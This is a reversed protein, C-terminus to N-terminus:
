IYTGVSPFFQIFDLENLNQYLILGISYRSCEHAEFYLGPGEKGGELNKGILWFINVSDMFIKDCNFSSLIKSRDRDYSVDEVSNSM